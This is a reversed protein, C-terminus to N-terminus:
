ATWLAEKNLYRSVHLAAWELWEDLEQRFAPNSQAQDVAWVMESVHRAAVFLELQEV